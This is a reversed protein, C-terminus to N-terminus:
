DGERLSRPARALVQALLADRERRLRVMELNRLVARRLEDLDKFPKTLFECVETRLAEIATRHSPHSTIVIAGVHPAAERIRGLLTLGDTDPLRIDLIALDVGRSAVRDLAEAGSGATELSVGPLKRLKMGIVRRTVPDDDVVLLVPTAAPDYPEVAGSPASLVHRILSDYLRRRSSAGLHEHRAGTVWESGWRSELTWRVRVFLACPTPVGDDLDLSLSVLSGVELAEPLVLQVGDLGLRTCSGQGERGSEGVRYRVRVPALLAPLDSSPSAAGPVAPPPGPVSSAEVEVAKLVPETPTRGMDIPVPPVTRSTL